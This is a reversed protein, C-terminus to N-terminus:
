DVDKKDLGISPFDGKAIAELGMKQIIHNTFSDVECKADTVIKQTAREFQSVYFPMNQTVEQRMVRLQDKLIAKDAKGITKKNLIEETQAEYTELKEFFGKMSQEFYNYAKQAETKEDDPIEEVRKGNFSAITCPVGSGNSTTIMETFQSPTLDIEILEGCGFFWNRGLDNSVSGRKVTIRIFNNCRIHSGFFKGNGGSIRGVRVMGYAPHTKQDDITDRGM